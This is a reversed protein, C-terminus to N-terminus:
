LVMEKEILEGGTSVPDGDIVLKKGEARAKNLSFM